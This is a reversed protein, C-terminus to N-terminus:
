PYFQKGNDDFVIIAKSPCSKAALLVTEADDGKENVVVSKNESDLQFVKSALAICNGAGICLNREIIIKGIKLDKKLFVATEGDPSITSRDINTEGTDAQSM